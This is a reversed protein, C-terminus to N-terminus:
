QETIGAPLDAIEELFLGREADTPIRCTDRKGFWRYRNRSVLNYISDRIFRPIVKFVYFAPWPMSLERAIELAADSRYLLQNDKLLIMTLMSNTNVGRETLVKKALESQLSAYRFKRHPDRNIIFDVAGNCLNCVGDFFVIHSM